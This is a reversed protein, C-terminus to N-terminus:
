DCPEIKVKQLDATLLVLEAYLKRYEEAEYDHAAVNRLERIRRWTAASAIWEYKEAANLLDIVSGRFAPDKELVLLRFYRSILLDSYRAFRSSFSELIELQEESLDQDLPIKAAKLYSYDLHARARALHAIVM